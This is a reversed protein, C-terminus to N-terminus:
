KALDIQYHLFSKSSTIDKKLLEIVPKYDIKRILIANDVDSSVLRESLNYHSLLDQMRVNLGDKRKVVFFDKEYIMSFATGHFSNSVVCRAHKVLSVFKLPSCCVFSKDAYSKIAPSVSFIRCKNLKSLRRAITEVAVNSDFDYTLIYDENMEGDLSKDQEIINDWLPFDLLFVPDMVTKGDYGLSELIQLGSEERVSIADFNALERRVFRKFRPNVEQTAFSAAYSIKRKPAGYDLYFARDRGNQFNTNWIQDSGAIYLDAIPPNDRLQKFSTYQEKTLVIYKNFFLEFSNRRAQELVYYDKRKPAQIKKYWGYLHRLGFLSLFGIGTSHAPNVKSGPQYQPRYDIVAVDHGQSRLYSVLAFAQLMAGHNYTHHCTITRIVM